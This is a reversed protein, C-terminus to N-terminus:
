MTLSLLQWEKSVRLYELKAVYSTRINAGFSNKADVFGVVVFQCKGEVTSSVAQSPFTATEPASLARRVFGQSMVYAGTTSICESDAYDRAARDRELERDDSTHTLRYGAWQGIILVTAITVVAAKARGSNSFGSFFLYAKIAAVMVIMPGIFLLLFM